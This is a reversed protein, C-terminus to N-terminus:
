WYGQMFTLAATWLANGSAAGLANVLTDRGLERLGEATSRKDNQDVAVRIREVIARDTLQTVKEALRDVLDAIRQDQGDIQLMLDGNVIVIVSGTQALADQQSNTHEAIAANAYSRAAKSWREGGRLPKKEVLGLRRAIRQEDDTAIRFWSDDLRTAAALVQEVIETEESSHSRPKLDIPQITNVEGECGYILPHTRGALVVEVQPSADLITNRSLVPTASTLFGEENPPVVLDNPLLDVVRRREVEAPSLWTKIALATLPVAVATVLWSLWPFTSSTWYRAAVAVLFPAAVITASFLPLPTFVTRTPSALAIDNFTPHFKQM